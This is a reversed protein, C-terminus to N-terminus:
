EGLGIRRMCTEIALIDDGDDLQFGCMPHQLYQTVRGHLRSGTALLNKARCVYISGNEELNAIRRHQRPQRRERQAALTGIQTGDIAEAQWVYGEIRRASFLSDARSEELADIALDTDYPFRCPSTPQLLVIMWEHLSLAEIVECMASETTADDTATAPSRAFVEAGFPRDSVLLEPIDTTVIVRDVHHSQKAHLVSWAYLPRGFISAMNKGPIGKSGARAPIIAAIM